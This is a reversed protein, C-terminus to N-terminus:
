FLTLVVYGCVILTLTGLYGSHCSFACGFYLIISGTFILSVHIRTWKEVRNALMLVKDMVSDDGQVKREKTGM